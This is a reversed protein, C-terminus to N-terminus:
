EDTTDATVSNAVAAQMAVRAEEDKVNWEYIYKQYKDISNIKTNPLKPLGAWEIEGSNRDWQLAHFNAPLASCDINYFVGDIGVMNDAKIITLRRM